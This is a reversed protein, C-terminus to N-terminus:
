PETEESKKVPPGREALRKMEEYVDIRVRKVNPLPKGTERAFPVLDGCLRYRAAPNLKGPLVPPLLRIRPSDKAEALRARLEEGSFVSVWTECPAGTDAQLDHWRATTVDWQPADPAAERWDWLLAHDAGTMRRLAAARLQRVGGLTALSSPLRERSFAGEAPKWTKNWMVRRVKRGQELDFLYFGLPREDAIHGALMHWAKEGFADVHPSSFVALLRQAAKPSYHVLLYAKGALSYSEPGLTVSDKREVAPLQGTIRALHRNVSAPGILILNCREIDEKTLDVDARVPIAGQPMTDWGAGRLSLRSCFRDIAELLKRDKGRTGKVILLPEGNIYMRNIGGVTYPRYPQPERPDSAHVTFAPLRTEPIAESRRAVFVKEPLPAAVRHPAGDISVALPATRDFLETPLHVCLVDVNVLRLFVRNEVARARVSAPRNPDAFELIDLWYAKGRDPTVTAYHVSAPHANRRQRHLWGEMDWSPDKMSDSHGGGSSETYIVPYGMERLRRVASRSGDVPVVPDTADHFNWVPVNALNEVWTGVWGFYPAGAAFLDPYRMCMRWTGGGGMSTGTVYIRDPDIRYHRRVDRIVELVDLEGLGAYGNQGRGDCGVFFYDLPASPPKQDGYWGGRGHLRVELAYKRAPDYTPPVYLSYIQGSSDVGSVYAARFLGRREANSDGPTEFDSLARALESACQEMSKARKLIDRHREDRVSLVGELLHGLGLVMAAERQQGSEMKGQRVQEAVHDRRRLLGFPIAPTKGVDNGAIRLTLPAEFAEQSTVAFSVRGTTIGDGQQMPLKAHVAEAGKLELHQGKWEPRGLFAYHLQKMHPDYFLDTLFLGRRPTTRLWAAVGNLPYIRPWAKSNTQTGVLKLELPKGPTVWKAPAILRLYGFHRGDADSYVGHFLLKGGDNGDLTWATKDVTRITFRNTGNVLLDFANVGHRPSIGAAWIFTATDSQFGEPVAATRWPIARKGQHFDPRIRSRFLLHGPFRFEHKGAPGEYGDLWTKAEEGVSAVFRDVAPEIEFRMRAEKEQAFVGAAFLCVLLTGATGKVGPATFSNRM